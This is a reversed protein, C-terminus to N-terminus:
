APIQSDAIPQPLVTRPNPVYDRWRGVITDAVVESPPSVGLHHCALLALRQARKAKAQFYTDCLIEEYKCTEPNLFNVAWGKPSLPIPKPVYDEAWRIAANKTIPPRM